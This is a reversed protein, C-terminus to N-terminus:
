KLANSVIEYVNKSLDPQSIINELVKKMLNNRNDNYKKRNNFAAAIMSAIQPNIKDLIKVQNGVFEYGKGDQQHFKVPNFMAFSGILSRVKNPNKISFDPHAVLKNMNALSDSRSSVAQIAFWKDLVLSNNKWKSYFIDVAKENFHSEKDTLISFLAIEDTMNSANKYKNFLMLLIGEQELAGIYSFAVNRLDRKAMALFSIDSPDTDFCNNIQTELLDKFEIALNQKLYNRATHIADVDVIDFKEAIENESPLSLAKAIFAKNSDSNELLSKFAYLLHSSIKYQDIDDYNNTLKIIEKFYIEQSADWKNFEDSDNAMIFALEDESYDTKIKVPASFERFFSPITNEPINEFVFSDNQTKFNYFSKGEQTIDEGKGDLLGIKIPIHFPKKNKQNKDPLCTQTFNLTLTKLKKDYSRKIKVLPTGSQTYWLMFQSFDENSIQEMCDIFDEITVAMGDYKDFYLNMGKKFLDQGLITLIMRILEAGKEYVTMTYFNNMEMYSSPRVPHTMPGSDEPFQLTRLAKVNNIRNVGRSHLDSSFEQDRFVTLGEKLALQFWNKLTVRNGTWNHFYEHAIVRQINFFDTDTATKSDALVYKSNFINLGKNEMAGANFDNVAVIQYLDLDYERDFREEDWKMSQKLSNMAHGCKDKNEKEVYLNLDITRKSRTKFKDKILVLDGAVLAFLYSPKRFPDEWKVYHRGEELDGADIRNGNSLLVPYKNKDAIIICSYKAMVDPRDPFPTIKRFGEAECQTCLVPGSKYLGELSTNKIPDLITVIELNFKSPTRALKFCDNEVKYEVPMLVMDDAIVSEINLDKAHFILSTEIDAVNSNKLVKLNSTVRTFDDFIDFKLDIKDITFAPERYDKLYKKKHKEM